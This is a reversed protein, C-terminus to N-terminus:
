AHAGELDSSYQLTKDDAALVELTVQGAGFLAELAARAEDGLPTLAQKMRLVVAGDAQQHVSFHPIPLNQM